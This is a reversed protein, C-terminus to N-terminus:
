EGGGAVPVAPRIVHYQGLAQEGIIRRRDNFANVMAARSSGRLGIGTPCEGIRRRKPHRAKAGGVLMGVPFGGVVDESVRVGDAL